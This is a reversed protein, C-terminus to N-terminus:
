GPSIMKEPRVVEDFEENTVYGGGVAEERLTTGKKHATKAIKAANDYGIKPALATVLMLSRELAAKINDERAEIGVVCNDTFSIAADSMLRVSQLFNYAMVPNYVNLEFHGQSGAFTLAANNGFIQVCVQTLAECQTPNVKGPMISSGPENEPLSLEGLGSRPGSGLLRIDNAIKFLSAAVTNIASHSFVMADHAALAEFKNPASTFPLGTIGAIKEAVKEAFGVPANLGTGVATGGQALEMLAPLTMEIRKIGNEVQQTYGSFEQGLTLPTADQTHTRGIKIIDKWEASKAALAGHLHKLAPLLRHVIEEACAIHMATPYTDNSSQSMNVHDNPHVPKKSGMEGGLMEIARNSIVENANMNSQTGSGTQWVALPFHADLKGEIVEQAAAVITEALKPDLRGLDRNVEAAARKVIGLARVVPLPQKEWGIKFNGLSRQAQAGWYRDSEVEIPGFTDTETRTTM